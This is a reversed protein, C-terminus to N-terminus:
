WWGFMSRNLDLGCIQDMETKTLESDLIDLKDRMQEIHTSEPIIVSRLARADHSDLGSQRKDGLSSM